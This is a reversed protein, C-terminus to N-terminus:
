RTAAAGCSSRRLPWAAASGLADATAVWAPPVFSKPLPPEDAVPSAAATEPHAAATNCSSTPTAPPVGKTTATRDTSSSGDRGGGVAVAPGDESSDSNCSAVLAALGASTCGDVSTDSSMAATVAATGRGTGLAAALAAAATAAPGASKASAAAGALQSAGGAAQDCHGRAACAADVAKKAIEHLMAERVGLMMARMLHSADEQVGAEEDATLARTLARQVDVGNSAGTNVGHAAAAAFSSSSSGYADLHQEAPARLEAEDVSRLLLQQKQQEEHKLGENKGEM